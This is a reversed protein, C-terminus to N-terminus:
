TTSTDCTPTETPTITSWEYAQSPVTGKGEIAEIHALWVKTDPEYPNLHIWDNPVVEDFWADHFGLKPSYARERRAPARWIDTPSQGPRMPYPVGYLAGNYPHCWLVHITGLPRPRWVSTIRNDPYWGGGARYIRVTARMGAEPVFGGERWPWRTYGYFEGQPTRVNVRAEYMTVSLSAGVALVDGHLELYPGVEDSPYVLNPDFLSTMRDKQRLRPQPYFSLSPHRFVEILLM